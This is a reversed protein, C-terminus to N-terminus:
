HIRYIYIYINLYITVANTIAKSQYHTTLVGITYQYCEKNRKEVQDM